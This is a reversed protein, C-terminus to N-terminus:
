EILLDRSFFLADGDLAGHIMGLLAALPGAIRADWARRVPKRLAEIRCAASQPCLRFAVPLDTPDILFSSAAHRGLRVFLAPHRRALCGAMRRLPWDIAQLPIRAVLEAALHPLAPPRAPGGVVQEAPPLGAAEARAQPNARNGVAGEGM